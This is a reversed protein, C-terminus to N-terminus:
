RDINWAPLLADLDRERVLERFPLGLTLELGLLGVLLDLHSLPTRRGDTFGVVAECKTDM